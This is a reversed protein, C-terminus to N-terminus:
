RSTPWWARLGPGARRVAVPADSTTTLSSSRNGRGATVRRWTRWSTSVSKARWTTRSKTSVYIYASRALHGPKIKANAIMAWM